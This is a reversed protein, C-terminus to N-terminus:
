SSPIRLRFKMGKGPQSTCSLDCKNIEALRKATYLSLGIPFEDAALQRISHYKDFIRPLDDQNIGAGGGKVVIIAQQDGVEGSVEVRAGPNTSAFASYVVRDIIYGLQKPAALVPPSESLPIWEVQVKKRNAYKVSESVVESVINWLDQKAKEAEYQTRMAGSELELSMVFDDLGRQLRDGAAKISRLVDAMQDSSVTVKRDLLLTSLSRIINVPVKVEDSLSNLIDRKLGEMELARSERIGSARKLRGRVSALLVDRDIPKTLYDDVGLERGVMVHEQDSLATLFLFPIQRFGPDEQVKQYFAVGDMVPMLIDSLILDIKKNELIRMADAGNEAAMVDYGEITLYKVIALRIIKEDEVVVISAPYSEEM